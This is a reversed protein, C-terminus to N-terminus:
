VHLMVAYWIGAAVATALMVLGSTVALVVQGRASLGPHLRPLRDGFPAPVPESPTELQAIALPITDLSQTM